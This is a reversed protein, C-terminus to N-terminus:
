GPCRSSPARACASWCRTTPTAWGAAWRRRSRPSTSPSRRPSGTRSAAARQLYARCAETTITFGPPVPLGLNTMEALNAGKGGLLDRQDKNGEAFDFVYGMPRDERTRPRNALAGRRTTLPTLRLLAPRERRVGARRRRAHRARRAVRRATFDACREAVQEPTCFEAGRIERPQRVMRTSCRRTTARRRRLGPLARRGLRGVAAALRHAAAARRRADLGSSRRSRAASRAAAPVRRGRGGRRAPGLGAQLDAPVAAGPRRPRAGAAPQDGAQPAPLLQAAGPVRRARPRAHRDGAPRLRDPRRARRRGAAGRM